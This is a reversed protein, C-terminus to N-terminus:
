YSTHSFFYFGKKKKCLFNSEKMDKMENVDYLRIKIVLYTLLIVKRYKKQKKLMM